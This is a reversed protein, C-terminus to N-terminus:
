QVVTEWSFPLIVGPLILITLLNQGILTTTKDSETKTEAISVFVYNRCSDDAKCHFKFGAM